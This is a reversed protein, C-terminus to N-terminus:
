KQLLYSDFFGNKPSKQSFFAMKQWNKAWRQNKLYSNIPWNKNEPIPGGPCLLPGGGKIKPTKQCIKVRFEM